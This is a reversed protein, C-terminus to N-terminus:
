NTQAEAQGRANKKRKREEAPRRPPTIGLAEQNRVHFKLVREDHQVYPPVKQGVAERKQIVKDFVQKAEQLEHEDFDRLDLRRLMPRLTAVLDGIQAQATSWRILDDSWGVALLIGSLVAGVTSLAVIAARALMSKEAFPSVAAALVLLVIITAGTLRMRKQIKSAEWGYVNGTTRLEALEKIVQDHFLAYQDEEWTALDQEYTSM